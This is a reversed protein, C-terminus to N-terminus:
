ASVEILTMLDVFVADEDRTRLERDIREHSTITMDQTKGERSIHPISRHNSLKPLFPNLRVPFVVLNGRLQRSRGPPPTVELFLSM